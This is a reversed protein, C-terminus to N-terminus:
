WYGACSESVVLFKHSLVKGSSGVSMVGFVIAALRELFMSMIMALSGVRVGVFFCPFGVVFGWSRAIFFM